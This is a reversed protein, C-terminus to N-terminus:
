TENLLLKKFLPALRKEESRKRPHHFVCLTIGNNTEYRLNPFLSWPLIYHAELRGFCEENSIKCKWDDRNKVSKMWDKYDTDYAQKRDEVPISKFRKGKNAISIKLRTEESMVGRKNRTWSKQSLSMKSLTEESHKKGSMGGVSLSKNWSPKGIKSDSIKKKTEDSMHKRKSRPTIGKQFTGGLGNPFHSKYPDGKLGKNWPIKKEKFTM